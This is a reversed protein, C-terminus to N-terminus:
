GDDRVVVRPTKVLGSEIAYNLGFDSVIWAFLSEESSQKGMPVFPTASLDYCTLIGRAKHIRGLGWIWKTAKEVDAKALGQVKTEAPIRWVHHAEDNIVLIGRAGAMEQLVERAYAALAPIAPVAGHRPARASKISSPCNWSFAPIM